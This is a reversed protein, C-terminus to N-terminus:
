AGVNSTERSVNGGRRLAELCRAIAATDKRPPGAAYDAPYEVGSNLDVGLAGAAAAAAINDPGIGGALIGRGLVDAPVASWDFARGTGGAGSDLVLREPADESDLLGRAIASAGEPERDFPLARWVAVDGAGAEAAERRVGHLLELEEELTGRPPAQVQLAFVGELAALEGWGRERRSVAVYDLGPEAAVIEGSTERSVNRPSAKEFILGGYSAGAARAAQAAAPETLGCVKAEGYALRRAARDVDPQSTLQSGVLFGNVRGGIAAVTAHDRIGSEAVVVRDGPILHALSESRSLDISLDHLNRHNIGIIPAGLDVARRTEEEDVVETLVDLGLEGAARALGQYEEDSLVSLMLLVADAGFYRAAKLQVPDVIFDKCLVPLHTASRAARLHDYDGGFFEPECLVSIGAAYRSYIRAIDAPNYDRRILGRSPSRRKCEMIFRNGGRGGDPAGGGLAEYLSRTSRELGAADVHGVRAAIDSLHTRRREVINELVTPISSAM